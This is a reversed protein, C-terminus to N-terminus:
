ARRRRDGALGFLAGLVAVAGVGAAVVNNSDGTKPLAAKTTTTKTATKAPTVKNGTADYGDKALQATTVSAPTGVKTITTPKVLGNDDYGAKNLQEKTVSAPTGLQTKTAQLGGLQGLNNTHVPEGVQTKTAQLGGLQGLNNTHVPEGVQTKTAQLGGLQGLNNTHTPEAVQTKVQPDTDPLTGPKSVPDPVATKTVPTTNDAKVGALIAEANEAQKEIVATTTKGAKADQYGQIGAAIFVNVGKENKLDKTAALEELANIANGLKTEAATRDAAAKQAAQALKNLALKATDGKKIAVAAEDKAPTTDASVTNSGLTSVSFLTAAALGAAIWTKNVKYMKKAGTRDKM